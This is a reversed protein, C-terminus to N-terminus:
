RFEFTFVFISYYKYYMLNINYVINVIKNKINIISTILEVNIKLEVEAEEIFYVKNLFINQNFRSRDKYKYVGIM